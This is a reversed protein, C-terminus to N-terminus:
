FPLIRELIFYEEPNKIIVLKKDIFIFGLSDTLRNEDTIHLYNNNQSWNFELFEMTNEENMIKVKGTKNRNFKWIGSDKKFEFYITESGETLSIIKWTGYFKSTHNKNSPNIVIEPLFLTFKELIM